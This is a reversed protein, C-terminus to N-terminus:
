WQKVNRFMADPGHQITIETALENNLCLGSGNIGAVVHILEPTDGFSQQRSPMQLGIHRPVKAGL